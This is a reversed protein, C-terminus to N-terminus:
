GCVLERKVLKWQPFDIGDPQISGSEKGMKLRDVLGWMRSNLARQQDESLSEWWDPAIFVNEFYEFMLRVLANSIDEDPILSLSEVFDCCTGDSGELWTFVVFGSEGDYFSTLTILDAEATVDSLDQLKKGHITEQPFFAGSCMVPPPGDYRGNELCADMEALHRANDKQGAATGIDFMLAMAQIDFQEAQSKGRDTSKRVDSLSASANKTFIERALARYALLFCQEKSSEFKRTEVPAFIKSDHVGCFGTFTSARNVGILEPPVKGNYKNLKSFSLEYGYVHNERAIARLSLSKPVTHAQVIQGSCESHWRKPASCTKVSFSKRMQKEAEWPSTADDKERNLHCRKYKKGSGCWCPENRGRKNAM